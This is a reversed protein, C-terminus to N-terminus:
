VHPAEGDRLRWRVPRARQDQRAHAHAGGGPLLRLAAPLFEMGAEIVASAAAGVTSPRGEVFTLSFPQMEM